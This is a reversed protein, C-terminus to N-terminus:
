LILSTDVDETGLHRFALLREDRFSPSPTVPCSSLKTTDVGATCFPDRPVVDLVVNSRGGLSRIHHMQQQQEQKDQEGQEEQEQQQEQEEQEEQQEKEEQQEQEEQKQQEEEQEQEDAGGAGGGGRRSSRSSTAHTGSPHDNALRLKAHGSQFEHFDWMPRGTKARFESHSPNDFQGWCDLQLGKSGFRKTVM